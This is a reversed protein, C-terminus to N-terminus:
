RVMNIAIVPTISSSTNKGWPYTRVAFLIGANATWNYEVGPALAWSQSEGSNAQAGGGRVWTNDSHSYVLDSAIVWNRTVSYEAAADVSFTNGPRATGNFAAPTGYVSIGHVATPTEFTQSLNLRARLIRGNPMWAYTQTYLSVKTSYAGSGAGDTPNSGLRDYRGTPLNEQIAVSMTPTRHDMTFQTLRYQLIVGLDGFAINSSNQGHNVYTYTATPTLGVSLRDALGYILYTFNGFTHSHTTGVPKGKSDFNAYQIVDFFYPEVLIHGRPLTGAGPALMPGTWWADSLSQRVQPSPSPKPSPQAAAITQATATSLLLAITVFAFM